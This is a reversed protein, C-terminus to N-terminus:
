YLEFTLSPEPEIEFELSNTELNFELNELDIYDTKKLTVTVGDVEIGENDKVKVIYDGAPLGTFEGSSQWTEGDDISYEYPSVGGGAVITITGNNNSQTPHTFSLSSIILKQTLVVVSGSLDDAMNKAISYQKVVKEYGTKTIEVRFNKYIANNARLGVGVPISIQEIVGVDVVGNVNSNLNYENNRDDTIKVGVGSIVNNQNDKVIFSFTRYFTYTYSLSNPSNTRIQIENDQRTTNINEFEMAFSTSYGYILFDDSTNHFYINRFLRSISTNTINVLVREDFVANSVIAPATHHSHNTIGSAFVNIKDTNATIQVPTGYISNFLSESDLKPFPTYISATKEAVICSNKLTLYITSSYSQKVVVAGDKLVANEWYLTAGDIIILYNILNVIDTKTVKLHFTLHIVRDTIVYNMDGIGSSQIMSDILSVSPTSTDIYIIGRGLEWTLKNYMVHKHSVGSWLNTNPYPTNFESSITFPNTTYGPVYYSHSFKTLDGIFLNNVDFPNSNHMYVIISEAYNPLVQCYWSTTYSSTYTGNILFSDYDNFTIVYTGAYIGGVITITNGTYLCHKPSNVKIKGSGGSEFSIITGTTKWSVSISRKTSDTTFTQPALIPSHATQWYAPLLGHKKFFAFIWYTTNPQLSGGETLTINLEPAKWRIVYDAM